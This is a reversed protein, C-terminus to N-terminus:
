GDEVRWLPVVSGDKKLKGEYAVVRDGDKKTIVEAIERKNPQPYLKWGTLDKGNFLQVWGTDEKLLLTCGTGDDSRDDALAWSSVFLVSGLLLALAPLLRRM